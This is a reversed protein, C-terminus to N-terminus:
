YETKIVPTALWLYTKNELKNFRIALNLNITNGNVSIGQGMEPSWASVSILKDNRIGEVKKAGITSFIKNAILNMKETKLNGPFNGTVMVSPHPIIGTYEFGKCINSSLQEFGTKTDTWDLTVSAYVGKVGDNEQTELKVCSSYGLTNEYEIQEMSIYDNSNWTEKYTKSNIKGTYKALTDALNKMSEKTANFPFKSGYIHIQGTVLKADSAIFAKELSVPPLVYRYITMICLLSFLTIYTIYKTIKISM